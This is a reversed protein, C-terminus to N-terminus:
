KGVGFCDKAFTDTIYKSAVKEPKKVGLAVMLPTDEFGLSHLMEHMVLAAVYAPSYTNITSPRLFVMPSGLQNLGM